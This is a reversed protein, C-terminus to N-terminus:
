RYLGVVRDAQFIVFRTKHRRETGEVHAIAQAMTMPEDSLIIHGQDHLETIVTDTTEDRITHM